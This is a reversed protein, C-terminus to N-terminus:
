LAEKVKRAAFIADAMEGSSPDLDFCVWDPKRPSKARSGWVHVAICGLNALALQTTERGGVVYTTIGNEHRIPQTPPDPPLGHPQEKQYFCQGKMGDPCRELSLLRDDVWPQLKVFVSHYFSVLDLKTYGDEPWFVKDPNSVPVPLPQARQSRRTVLDRPEL